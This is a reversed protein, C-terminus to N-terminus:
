GGIRGRGVTYLSVQSSGALLTTSFASFTYFRPMVSLCKADSTKSLRGVSQAFFRLRGFDRRCVLAGSM